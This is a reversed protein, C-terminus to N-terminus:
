GKGEIDAEVRVEAVQGGEPGIIGDASPVLWIIVSDIESVPLESPVVAGTGSGKGLKLAGGRRGGGKRTTGSWRLRGM